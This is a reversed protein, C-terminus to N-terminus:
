KSFSVKIDDALLTGTANSLALMIRYKKTGEPIQINKQFYTWDTNATVTGILNDPASKETGDKTLELIFMGNNWTEKGQKISKAKLWGSIQIFKAEAPIDGSQDIATWTETTSSISASGNGSHKEASITASGSWNDLKNEFDGNSFTKLQSINTAAQNSKAEQEHIYKAYDDSSVPMAKIDDFMIMGNTQALALMVRIGRANDPVLFVKKYFTWPTRGKVQAINEYSLHQGSSTTVEATMVGANYDEKGGEIGDTKIWGSLEIATTGKPITIQQDIGKWEAGTFQNIVAANNGSKKDYLSLTAAGGNWNQFEAEFSGNSVLNKQSFISSSVLFAFLFTINKM